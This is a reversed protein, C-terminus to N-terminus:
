TAAETRTTLARAPPAPPRCRATEKSFWEALGHVIWLFLVIIIVGALMLFLSLCTGFLDQPRLGVVFAFSDMGDRTLNLNLLKNTATSNLFLPYATNTM